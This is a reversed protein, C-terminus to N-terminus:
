MQEILDEIAARKTKGYGVPWGLDHNAEDIAAYEGDPQREILITLTQSNSMGCSPISRWSSPTLIPLISRCSDSSAGVGRLAEEVGAVKHFSVNDAVVIDGHKLTPALCQEIYALFAEGNMAGKILMPAVIGTQRLGAKQQANMEILDIAESGT